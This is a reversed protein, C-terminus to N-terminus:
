IAEIDTTKVWRSHKQGAGNLTLSEIFLGPNRNFCQVSDEIRILKWEGGFERILQKLRKNAPKLKITKMILM